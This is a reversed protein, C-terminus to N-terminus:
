SLHDCTLRTKRWLEIWFFYNQRKIPQNIEFLQINPIDFGWVYQGLPATERRQHNELASANQFESSHFYKCWFRRGNKCLQREHGFFVRDFAKDNMRTRRNNWVCHNTQKKIEVRKVRLTSWSRGDDQVLVSEKLWRMNSSDNMQWSIVHWKSQGCFNPWM